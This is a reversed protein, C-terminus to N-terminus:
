YFREQQRKEQYFLLSRTSHQTFQCLLNFCLSTFFSLLSFSLLQFLAKSYFRSPCSLPLQERLLGVSFCLAVKMQDFLNPCWPHVSCSSIFVLSQRCQLHFLTTQFRWCLHCISQWVVTLYRLRMYLRLFRTCLKRSVMLSVWFQAVDEPISQISLKPYETWYTVELHVLNLNECIWSTRDVDKSVDERGSGTSAESRKYVVSLFYSYRRRM